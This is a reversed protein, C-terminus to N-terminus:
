KKYFYICENNEHQIIFNINAMEKIFNNRNERTYFFPAIIDTLYYKKNNVEVVDKMGNLGQKHLIIVNSNKLENDFKQRPSVYEIRIQKVILIYNYIKEESLGIYTIFDDIKKLKTQFKLIDDQNNLNYIKQEIARQIYRKIHYKIHLRIMNQKIKINNQIIHNIINNTIEANKNNLSKKIFWVKIKNIFIM